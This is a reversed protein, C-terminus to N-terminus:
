DTEKLPNKGMGQMSEIWEDIDEKRFRVANRIKLFPIEKKHVMKRVTSPSYRLYRAVDDVKWYVPVNM